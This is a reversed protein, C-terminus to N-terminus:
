GRYKRSLPLELVRIVRREDRASKSAAKAQQKKIRTKDLWHNNLEVRYSTCKYNFLSGM